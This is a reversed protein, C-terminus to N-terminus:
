NWWNIHGPAHARQKVAPEKRVSYGAINLLHKIREFETPNTIQSETIDPWLRKLFGGNILRSMYGKNRDKKFVFLQVDSDPFHVIIGVKKDKHM